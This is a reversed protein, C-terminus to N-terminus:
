EFPVESASLAERLPTKKIAALRSCSLTEKGQCITALSLSISAVCDPLTGAEEAV